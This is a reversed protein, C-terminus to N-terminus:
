LLIMTIDKHRACFQPKLGPKNFTATSSCGEYICIKTYLTIMNDLKHDYCYLAKKSGAINYTPQKICGAEKCQPNKVDVM